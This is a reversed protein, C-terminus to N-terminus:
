HGVLLCSEQNSGISINKTTKSAVALLLVILLCMVLVTVFDKMAVDALLNQIHQKRRTKHRETQRAEELFM